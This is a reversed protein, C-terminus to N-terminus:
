ADLVTKLLLKAEILRMKRDKKCYQEARMSLLKFRKEGLQDIKFKRYDERNTSGWQQHCGWCLTDLNEPDFRTNERGRGFYHSAQHSIPLGNDNLEVRSGCRMCKGDRLRIYQSFTQDARDIKIKM